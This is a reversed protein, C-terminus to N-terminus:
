GALVLLLTELINRTINVRYEADNRRKMRARLSAFPSSSWATYYNRPTNFSWVMMQTRIKGAPSQLVKNGKLLLDLGEKYRERAAVAMGLWSCLLALLLDNYELMELQIELGQTMKRESKAANVLLNIFNMSTKLPRSKTQSDVYNKSLTLVQPIYKGCLIWEEDDHKNEREGPFRRVLLKTAADFQEQVIM